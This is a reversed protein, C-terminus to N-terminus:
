ETPLLQSSINLGGLYLQGGDSNPIVVLPVSGPNNNAQEIAAWLIPEVDIGFTSENWSVLAALCDTNADGPMGYYIKCNFSTNVIRFVNDVCLISRNNTSGDDQITKFAILSKTKKM